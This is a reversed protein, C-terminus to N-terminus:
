ELVWSIWSSGKANGPNRIKKKKKKFFVKFV